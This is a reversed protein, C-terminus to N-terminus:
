RFICLGEMHTNANEQRWKLKSVLCKSCVFDTNPCDKAMHVFSSCRWCYTTLGFPPVPTPREMLWQVVDQAPKVASVGLMGPKAKPNSKSGYIEARLVSLFAVITTYTAANGANDTDFPTIKFIPLIYDLTADQSGTIKAQVAIDQANLVAVTTDIKAPVFDFATNRTKSLADNNGFSLFIVPRYGKYRKTPELPQHWIQDLLDMAEDHTAFASTGFHFADAPGANASPLHAHSRIRLHMSWVHKLLGEAHPGPTCPLGCNVEQRSYTAIGIETLGYPPRASWKRYLTVIVAEKLLNDSKQYLYLRITDHHPKTALLDRLNNLKSNTASSM